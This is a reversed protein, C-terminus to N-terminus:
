GYVPICYCDTDFLDATLRDGLQKNKHQRTAHGDM